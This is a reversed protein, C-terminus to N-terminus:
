RIFIRSPTRRHPPPSQGGEAEDIEAVPSLGNQRLDTLRRRFAQTKEQWSKSVGLAFNQVESGMIQLPAPFADTWTPPRPPIPRSPAGQDDLAINPVGRRVAIDIRSPYTWPDGRDGPITGARQLEWPRAGRIYFGEACKPFDKLHVRDAEKDRFLGALTEAFLPASEEETISHKREPTAESPSREFPPGFSASSRRRSHSSRRPRRELEIDTQTGTPVSNGSPISLEGSRRRTYVEDEKVIRNINEAFIEAHYSGSSSRRRRLETKDVEYGEADFSSSGIADFSAVARIKKLPPPYEEQTAPLEKTVYDAAQAITANYMAAITHKPESFDTHHERYFAKLSEDADPANLPYETMPQTRRFYRHVIQMPEGEMELVVRYWLLDKAYNPKLNKDFSPIIRRKEHMLLDSLGSRRKTQTSKLVHNEWRTISTWEGMDDDTRKHAAGDLFIDMEKQRGMPLHTVIHLREEELTYENTPTFHEIANRVVWPIGLHKSIPELLDSLSKDVVWTGKFREMFQLTHKLSFSRLVVQPDLTDPLRPRPPTVRRIPEGGEATQDVFSEIARFVEASMTQDATDNLEREDCSLGAWESWSSPSPPESEWESPSPMEWLAAECSAVIDHDLHRKPKKIGEEVAGLSSVPSAYGNALMFVERHCRRISKELQPSVDPKSYALYAKTLVAANQIAVIVGMPLRLATGLVFPVLLLIAGITVDVFSRWGGFSMLNGGSSPRISDIGVTSEFSRRSWRFLWRIERRASVWMVYWFVPAFIPCLPLSFGFCVIKEVMRAVALPVDAKPLQMEHRAREAFISFSTRRKTTKDMNKRGKAFNISCVDFPSHRRTIPGLYRKPLSWLSHKVVPYFVTMTMVTGVFLKTVAKMRVGPEQGVGEFLDLPDLMGLLALPMLWTGIQFTVTKLLMNFRLECAALESSDRTLRKKFPHYLVERLAAVVCGLSIIVVANKCDVLAPLGIRELRSPTSM